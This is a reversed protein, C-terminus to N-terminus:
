GRRRQRHRVIIAFAWVIRGTVLVYLISRFVYVLASGGLLVVASTGIAAYNPPRRFQVDLGTHQRVFAAFPEASAGARNFDYQTPEKVSAREGETPHFLNITPATQLGLRRFVDQGDPFDLSAFFHKNSDAKKLWQRAVLRQEGDFVSCAKLQVIAVDARVSLARM